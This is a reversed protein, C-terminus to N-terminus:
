DRLVWELLKALSINKNYQKIVAMRFLHMNADNMESKQLDKALQTNITRLETIRQKIEKESKM